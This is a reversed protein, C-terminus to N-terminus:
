GSLRFCYSGPWFFFSVFFSCQKQHSTHGPWMSLKRKTPPPKCVFVSDYSFLYRVDKKATLFDAVKLEWKNKSSDVVLIRHGFFVVTAYTQIATERAEKYLESQDLGDECPEDNEADVDGTSDGLAIGFLGSMTPEPQM